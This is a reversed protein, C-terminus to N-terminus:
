VGRTLLPELDSIRALSRLEEPLEEYHLQKHLSRARRLWEILVALGASDCAHLGACDIVLSAAAAPIAEAGLQLASRATRFTLAGQARLRGPAAADMRFGDDAAPAAANTM